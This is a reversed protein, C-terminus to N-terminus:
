ASRSPAPAPPTATATPGTPGDADARHQRRQHRDVPLVHHHPRCPSAVIGLRLTVTEGVVPAAPDVTIRAQVGAAALVAARADLMGAGCLGVKCVCQLQDPSTATPATCAQLAGGSEDVTPQPFPRATSQLKFRVEDSSLQPQASLMLAVTGAVLPASFSTGVAAKDFSDSYTSGGGADAVPAGTGSNTTTLISYLCASNLATNICNGGPASITIEPGLDSFGVKTGIHRLRRRRDRRRLRGSHQGRAGRQQRGVRRRRRRARQDARGRRHLGPGVFQRGDCAGAGGLSM